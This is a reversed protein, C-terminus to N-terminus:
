EAEDGGEDASADDSASAPSAGVRINRAPVV